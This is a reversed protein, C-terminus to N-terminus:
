IDALPWYRVDASVERRGIAEADTGTHEQFTLLLRRRTPHQSDSSKRAV